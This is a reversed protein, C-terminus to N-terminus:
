YKQIVPMVFHTSSVGLLITILYKCVIAYKTSNILIVTHYYYFPFYIVQVKLREMM